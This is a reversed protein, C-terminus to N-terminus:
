ILGHIPICKNLVLCEIEVRIVFCRIMLLSFNYFIRKKLSFKVKAHGKFFNFYELIFQFMIYTYICILDLTTKCYDVISDFKFLIM